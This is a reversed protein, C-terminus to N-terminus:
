SKLNGLKLIKLSWLGVIFKVQLNIFEEEFQNMENKTEKM